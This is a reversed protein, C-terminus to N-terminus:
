RRRRWKAAGGVIKLAEKLSLGYITMVKSGMRTLRPQGKVRKFHTVQIQVLEEPKKITHASGTGKRWQRPLRLTPERRKDPGKGSHSALM